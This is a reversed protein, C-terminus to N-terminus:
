DNPHTTVEQGDAFRVEGTASSNPGSGHSIVESSEKTRRTAPTESTFCRAWSAGQGVESGTSLLRALHFHVRHAMMESIV